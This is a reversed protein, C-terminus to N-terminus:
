ENCVDIIIQANKKQIDKYKEFNENDTYMKGDLYLELYRAHEKATRKVKNLQAIKPYLIDSILRITQCCEDASITDGFKQIYETIIEEFSRSRNSSNLINIFRDRANSIVISDNIPQIAEIQNNYEEGYECVPTTFSYINDVPFLESTITTKNYFPSNSNNCILKTFKAEETDCKEKIVFKCKTCKVM